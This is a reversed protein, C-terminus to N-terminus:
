LNSTVVVVNTTDQKDCLEPGTLPFPILVVIARLGLLWRHLWWHPSAILALPDLLFPFLNSCFHHGCGQVGPRSFAWTLFATLESASFACLNATERLPGPVRSQAPM